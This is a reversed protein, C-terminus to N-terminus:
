EGVKKELKLIMSRLEKHKLQDAAEASSIWERTRQNEEWDDSHLVETVKMPFVEVECTGGWKPYGYSGLPKKGVKGKAGAEELAEKRASERPTLGPDVIGKPVVKNKGSRSSVVLIELRGERMRYPVVSSQTYYYAPRDRQEDGDPAPFPFTAPLSRPRVVALVRACDAKLGGWSRSMELRAVTGTPLSKGDASVPIMRDSLYDLLEEFGPNHGVIMTRAAKKPCNALVQLLDEVLAGYILKDYHIKKDPIGMTHCAIQATMKARTAPSSLVHDPVLNQQQLWTGIRQASREGRAKLPRYFDPDGTDWDSKGHRLILLERKM